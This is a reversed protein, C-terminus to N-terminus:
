WCHHGGASVSAATGSDDTCRSSHDSHSSWSPTASRQEVLGLRVREKHDPDAEPPEHRVNYEVYSEFGIARNVQPEGLVRSVGFGVIGALVGAILGRILLTRVM